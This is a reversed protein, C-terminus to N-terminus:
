RKPYEDHADIDSTPVYWAARSSHHVSFAPRIGPDDDLAGAAVIFAKGTKSLWPM